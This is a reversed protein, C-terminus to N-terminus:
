GVQDNRRRVVLVGGASMVLGPRVRSWWRSLPHLVRSVVFTVDVERLRHSHRGMIRDPTTMMVGTGVFAAELRAVLQELDRGARPMLGLIARHLTTPSDGYPATQPLTGHLHRSRRAVGGGLMWMRLRRAPPSKHKGGPRGVGGGGRGVGANHVSEARKGSGDERRRALIKPAGPLIRVQTFRILLGNGLDARGGPCAPRQRCASCGSMAQKAQPRMRGAPIAGPMSPTGNGAPRHAM